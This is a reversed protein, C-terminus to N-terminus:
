FPKVSPFSGAFQWCRHWVCLPVSGSTGACVTCRVAFFECGAFSFRAVSQFRTQFAFGRLECIWSGLFWILPFPVRAVCRSRLTAGLIEMTRSSVLRPPIQDSRALLCSSRFTPSESFSHNSVDQSVNVESLRLSIPNDIRAFSEQM